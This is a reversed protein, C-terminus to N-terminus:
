MSAMCSQLFAPAKRTKLIVKKDQAVELPRKGEINRLSFDAGHSWLEQLTTVDDNGAAVHAATEGRRNVANVNAGHRALLCVMDRCMHEDNIRVAIHIATNGDGDERDPDARVRLLEECVVVHHYYVAHM